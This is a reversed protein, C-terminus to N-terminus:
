KRKGCKGLWWVLWLRIILWVLWFVCVQLSCWALNLLSVLWLCGYYSIMIYSRGHTLKTFSKRAQFGLYLVFLASPVILAVNHWFGHCEFLWGYFRPGYNGEKLTLNYKEEQLTLNLVTSLPSEAVGELSRMRIWGAAVFEDCLLRIWYFRLGVESISVRFGRETYSDAVFM